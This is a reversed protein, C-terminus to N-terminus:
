NCEALQFLQLAVAAFYTLPIQTLTREPLRLTAVAFHFVSVGRNACNLTVYHLKSSTFFFQFIVNKFHAGNKEHRSNFRFKVFTAFYYQQAIFFAVPHDHQPRTHHLKPKLHVRKHICICYICRTEYTWGPNLPKATCYCVWMYSILAHWRISSIYFNKRSRHSPTTVRKQALLCHHAFMANEPSCFAKQTRCNALVWDITVTCRPKRVL